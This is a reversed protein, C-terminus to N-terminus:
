YAEVPRYVVGARRLDDGRFVWAYAYGRPAIVWVPEIGAPFPQFATAVRPIVYYDASTYSLNEPPTFEVLRVEISPSPNLWQGPFVGYLRIAECPQGLPNDAARCAQELQQAALMVEEGWGTWLPDLHGPMVTSRRAEEYHVWIPFFSGYLPAFPLIEAVLLLAVLVFVAAQQRIAQEALMVSFRLALILAFLLFALNLYRPLIPLSLVGFGLPLLWVPILLAQMGIDALQCRRWAALGVAIGMLWFVTPVSVVFYACTFAIHRAMHGWRSAAGYHLIAANFMTAPAYHGPQIPVTPALYAQVGYVGLVGVLALLAILAANLPMLVRTIRDVHGAVARKAWLILMALVCVGIFTVGLLALMWGRPLLVSGDTGSGLLYVFPWVWSVFPDPAGALLWILLDGRRVGAILLAGIMGALLAISLGVATNWVVAGVLHRAQKHHTHVAAYTALAVILIPTAILKEQAALYATILGVLAYRPSEGRLAVVVCLLALTGLTLSLADLTYIKLALNDTPLLLVTYVFLVFFIRREGEGLFHRNLVEHIALLVTFAALWHACKLLMKLQMDSLVPTVRGLLVFLPGFLVDSTRQRVRFWMPLNGWDIFLTENTAYIEDITLFQSLREVSLYLPLLALATLWLAPRWAGFQRRLYIMLASAAIVLLAAEYLNM